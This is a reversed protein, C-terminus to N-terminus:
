AHEVDKAKSTVGLQLVLERRNHTTGAIETEEIATSLNLDANEPDINESRAVDAAADFLKNLTDRLFTLGHNDNAEVRAEILCFKRQAIKVEM